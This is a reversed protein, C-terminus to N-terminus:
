LPPKDRGRLRRHLEDAIDAIDSQRRRELFNFVWRVVTWAPLGCAFVLGLMSVLGLYSDAWAHLNFHLIVFAGGAVSGLVTCIIGVIWERLSRPPTMCM